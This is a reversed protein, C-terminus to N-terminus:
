WFSAISSSDPVCTPKIAFASKLPSAIVILYPRLSRGHEDTMGPSSGPM